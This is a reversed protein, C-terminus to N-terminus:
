QGVEPDTICLAANDAAMGGGNRSEMTGIDLLLEMSYMKSHTHKNHLGEINVTILGARIVTIIYPSFSNGVNEM